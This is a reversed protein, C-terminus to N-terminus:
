RKLHCRCRIKNCCISECFNRSIYAQKGTTCVFNWHDDRPPEAGEHFCEPTGCNHQFRCLPFTRVRLRASPHRQSWETGRDQIQSVPGQLKRAIGDPSNQRPSNSHHPSAAFYFRFPLLSATHILFYHIICIYSYSCNFELEIDFKYKAKLGNIDTNWITQCKANSAIFHFSMRRVRNKESRRVQYSSTDNKNITKSPLAVEYWLIKISFYTM